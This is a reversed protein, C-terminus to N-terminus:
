KCFNYDLDGSYNKNFEFKLFFLIIQVFYCNEFGCFVGIVGIVCEVVKFFIESLLKKEM